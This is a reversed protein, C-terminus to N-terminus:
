GCSMMKRMAQHHMQRLPIRHTRHSMICGHRVLDNRSNSRGNSIGPWKSSSLANLRSRLANGQPRITDPADLGNRSPSPGLGPLKIGHGDILAQTLTAVVANVAEQATQRNMNHTEVLDAVFTTKTITVM